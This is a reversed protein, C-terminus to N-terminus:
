LQNGDSDFKANERIDNLEALIQEERTMPIEHAQFLVIQQDQPIRNLHGTESSAIRQKRANEMLMQGFTLKQREM